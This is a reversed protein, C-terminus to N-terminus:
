LDKAEGIDRMPVPLFGPCGRGVLRPYYFANRNGIFDLGGRRIEDTLTQEALPLCRYRTGCANARRMILELIAATSGARGANRIVNNRTAGVVLLNGM